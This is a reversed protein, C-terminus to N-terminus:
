MVEIEAQMAGATKLAQLISILDRPTVGLANLGNVLDRLKVGSQLMVLGKGKEEDVTVDTRPVVVTDGKSFPEPQSVSPTESISITLNGQAIAVTSLRVDQGIVVVGSNEDIIRGM